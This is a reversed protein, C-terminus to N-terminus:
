TSTLPRWCRPAARPRRRAVVILVRAMFRRETNQRRRRSVNEILFTWDKDEFEEATPEQAPRALANTVHGSPSRGSRASSRVKFLTVTIDLTEPLQWIM